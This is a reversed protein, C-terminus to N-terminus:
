SAGGDQVPKVNNNYGQIAVHSHLQQQRNNSERNTSINELQDKGSADVVLDHTDVVANKSYMYHPFCELSKKSFPCLYSGEFPRGQWWEEVMACEDFHKNEFLFGTGDGVFRVHKNLRGKAMELFLDKAKEFPEMNGVLASIYLPALDVIVLNGNEVNEKYNVITSSFREIYGEDRFRITAYVCLQGKRLGENLYLSVASDLEDRNEYLLAVHENDIPDM